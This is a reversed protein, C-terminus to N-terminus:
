RGKPMTMDLQLDKAAKAKFLSILDDAESGTTGTAGGMQFDPVWKQKAIAEAYNAEVREYTALKQELAGDAELVLRKRESDGEGILIQEQKYFEAAFKKQEAELKLQAAVEVQREAAIIAVKKEREAIVVQKEKEVEQEYKAQMVNALGQQEATIADQKARDANAKATIIAMTAKRKETIQELTKEEFGWEVVQFSSVSVGYDKLDSAQQVPNGDEGYVIVPVTRIVRDGAADLERVEKQTTKYKGNEVQDESWESFESRLVAYADESAMLGATLNMSEETVTRLLKNALGNNSRFKQHIRLMEEETSPLEFRAIGHVTGLGGDQYRVPIGNRDISVEEHDESRGETFDFTIVDKYVTETGWWTLYWDADLFIKTTGNPYELVTNFGQYNKGTGTFGIVIALIAMTFFGFLSLVGKNM